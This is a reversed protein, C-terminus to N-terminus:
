YHWRRWHSLARPPVEQADAAWEERYVSAKESLGNSARAARAGQGGPRAPCKGAWMSALAFLGQKVLERIRPMLAERNMKPQVRLRGM